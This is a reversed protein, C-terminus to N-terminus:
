WGHSVPTGFEGSDLGPSWWISGGDLYVMDRVLAAAARTLRPPGLAHAVATGRPQKWYCLTTNIQGAQWNTFQAWAQAAWLAVVVVVVLGLSPLGNSRKM